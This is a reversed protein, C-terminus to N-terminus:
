AQEKKVLTIERDFLAKQDPSFNHAIFIITAPLKCLAQLIKDQGAHDVASLSEDLLLLPFSHSLARALVLKQRQGGSITLDDLALQRQPDLKLDVAALCDEPDCALGPTHMTVNEALTAPFLVPDQALYGISYPDPQFARGAADKFVIQGKDAKLAGMLLKLLSSKGSGSDGTILIKEGAHITLDPYSILQKGFILSLQKIELKAMQSVPKLSDKKSSEQLRTLRQRLSKTSNLYSYSGSINELVSFLNSAFYGAAIVGGLSMQGKFFLFGAILPISVTGLANIISQLCQIQSNIKRRSVQKDALQKGSKLLAKQYAGKTFYRRLEALGATWEAITALFHQNAASMQETAQNSYKELLRAIAFSAATTLLSAVLLLWHFSLLSAVLLLANIVDCILYFLVTAYDYTLTDLDQSFHNTMESVSAPQQYYHDALKNRISHLYQQTQKSFLYNAGNFALNLVLALFFQALLLGCFLPFRGAAVQNVMPSFLYTSAVDIVQTTVLLVFIIAFRSRNSDIIKRLTM